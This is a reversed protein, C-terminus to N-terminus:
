VSRSTEWSGTSRPKGLYSSQSSGALAGASPSSSLERGEHHYYLAMLKRLTLGRKAAEARINERSLSQYPLDLWSTEAM